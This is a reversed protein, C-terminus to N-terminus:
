NRWNINEGEAGQWYLDEGVTGNWNIQDGGATITEVNPFSLGSLIFKKCRGFKMYPGDKEKLALTVRGTEEGDFAITVADLNSPLTFVTFTVPGGERTLVLSGGDLTTFDVTVSPSSTTGEVLDIQKADLPYNVNDFDDPMLPATYIQGAVMAGDGAQTLTFSTIHLADNDGASISIQFANFMPYFPIVVSEETQSGTAKALLTAYRMDPQYVNTTGERTVVQNVPIMWTARTDSISFADGDPDSGFMNPSPYMGYFTHLEDEGWTLPSEVAEISAVSKIGQAEVDVIRYDAMTAPSEACYIRLVDTEPIWNIREMTGTVTGEYATRTSVEPSSVRFRVQRGPIFVGKGCSTFLLPLLLLILTFKNKM